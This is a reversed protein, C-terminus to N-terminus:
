SAKKPTGVSGNKKMCEEKSLYVWEDPQNNATAQGACAHRSNGCDNKGKQAVGYCKVYKSSSAALTSTAAGAISASVISVMVAKAIKKCNKM